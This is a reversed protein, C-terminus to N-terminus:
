KPTAGHTPRSRNDHVCSLKKLGRQVLRSIYLQKFASNVARVGYILSGDSAPYQACDMTRRWEGLNVWIWVLPTTFPTSGWVFAARRYDGDISTFHWTNRDNHSESTLLYDLNAGSSDNLCDATDTAREPCINVPEPGVKTVCTKGWLM